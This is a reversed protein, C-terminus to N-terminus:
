VWVFTELHDENLSPYEVYRSGMGGVSSPNQLPSPFPLKGYREVEHQLLGRPYASLKKPEHRFVKLRLIVTNALKLLLIM